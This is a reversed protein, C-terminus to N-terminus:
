CLGLVIFLESPHQAVEVNVNSVVQRTQGTGTAYGDEVTMFYLLGKYKDSQVHIHM